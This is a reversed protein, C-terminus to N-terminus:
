IMNAAHVTAVVSGETEVIDLLIPVCKIILHSNIYIHCVKHMIFDYKKCITVAIALDLTTVDFAYRINKM